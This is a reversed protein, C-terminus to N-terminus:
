KADTGPQRRQKLLWDYLEPNAYAQTWCNHGADPYITLKATGGAENIADVM